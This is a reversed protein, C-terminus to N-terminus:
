SILGISLLQHIDLCSQIELSSFLKITSSINLFLRGEEPADFFLRVLCIQRDKLGFEVKLFLGVISYAPGLAQKSM